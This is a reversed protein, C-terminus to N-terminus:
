KVNVRLKIELEVSLHERFGQILGCLSLIEVAPVFEPGNFFQIGKGFDRKNM